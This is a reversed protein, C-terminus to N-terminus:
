RIHTVCSLVYNCMIYNYVNDMYVDSTYIDSHSHIHSAVHINFDCMCVNLYMIRVYNYVTLTEKLPSPPLPPANAGGQFIKPGRSIQPNILQVFLFDTHM